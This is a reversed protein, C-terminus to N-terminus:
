LCSKPTGFCSKCNSDCALCTSKSDSYFGTPCSTECKGNYLATNPKCQLCFGTANCNLCDIPCRHCISNMGFLGDPCKSTCKLESTLFTKERCSTCANEASSICNLCTTHCKLCSDGSIFYGDPCTIECKGEILYYPSTCSLCKNDTCKQCNVPCKVCSM